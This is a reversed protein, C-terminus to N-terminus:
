KFENTYDITSLNLVNIIGEKNILALENSAKSFGNLDSFWIRYDGRGNSRYFSIKSEKKNEVSNLLCNLIKKNDPGFKQESYDHINESKLFERVGSVADMIGKKLGTETPTLTSYEIKNEKLFKLNINLINEAELEPQISSQDILSRIVKGRHERSSLEHSGQRAFEFYKGEENSILSLDEDTFYIEVKKALELLKSELKYFVVSNIDLKHFEIILTFLNAKNYWYGDTPLKLKKIINISNQLLTLVDTYADFNTNYKKLYHDIKTNRGFYNGELITSFILMIFQIDYMRKIDNNTFVNSDEFFQLLLRRVDEDIVIDTVEISPTFKEDILQKCFMSFEGDGYEANIIENTNLSYNTSNIKKFIQKIIDIGIDKLDKVTIYYNLFERKEDISLAEFAIVHKQDKFDGQEKIYDVITTLRQQGDVVIERAQLSDVDVEISAIYVEPFPFNLLITKIFEYKHQKKWVLNRQFDPSTVLSGSNIKNYIEILKVSNSTVSSKLKM